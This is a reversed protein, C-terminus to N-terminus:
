GHAHPRARWGPVAPGRPHGRELSGAPAARLAPRRARVALRVGRPVARAPVVHGVVDPARRHGLAGGALRRRSGRDPRQLDRQFRPQGARAGGPRHDRGGDNADSRDHRRRAGLSREGVALHQQQAAWSARRFVGPFPPWISVIGKPERHAGAVLARAQSADAVGFLIAFSIGTGEQYKELKGEMPGAGHLFYGYMSADPIWLFKNIAAKLADAQADFRAAEETPRHLERALNAAARYAGVYVCNTSLAMIQDTGPHDLVFSPGGGGPASLPPPYGSIGDNFFSPGAFLGFKANFNRARRAALTQTACEYAPALVSADGTVLYHNWIAPVWIVQDWWQNDQQVILKGDRREVVAWLTNLAVAPSLLSAANWSNVSTDRTWPTQYHGGARIFTGPPDRFLGSRNHDQTPDRITNLTFLNELALQHAAGVTAQLSPQGPFTLQPLLAAKPPEGADEAEAFPRLGSLGIALLSVPLLWRSMSRVRTRLTQERMPQGSPQNTGSARHAAPNDGNGEVAVKM